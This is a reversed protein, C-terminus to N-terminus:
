MLVKLYAGAHRSDGRGIVSSFMDRITTILETQAILQSLIPNTPQESGGQLAVLEKLQTNSDAVFFRISNLYSALIDAQQETIGQIGRQLGSLENASSTLGGLNELMTTLFANLEPSMEAFKNKIDDLEAKTVKGGGESQEAFMEDFDKLFPELFRESGRMLLQKKIMDEFFEDFQEELGTLGDGAEKYAKLWSDIFNQAASKYSEGSGFGGLSELRTKELEKLQEEYEEIEEKWEKIQEHDTKKKDKELEIMRETADIQEQLNRQMLNQTKEYESISYVDQIKKDLEEYAKQLEEITELELEIQDQLKNDHAKFISAILMAVAQLAIVIYGIIGLASNAAVEMIEFQLTLQVASFILNTMGEVTDLIVMSTSDAEVGMAEMIDRTASFTDNIAEQYMKIKNALSQLEARKDSYIDLDKKAINAIKQNDDIIQQNLLRQRYLQDNSLTLLNQQDATLQNSITDLSMGERKANIVTDIADVQAQAQQQQFTANQLEVSLAEETRGAAKLEKIEKLSDRLMKFPNREMKIDEIKEIQSVIEKVDSAPLHSLSKKLETLKDLLNDIASNGVNSLDEFMQIYMDTGKFDEWAQKDLKEQSEDKIARQIVDKQERSYASESEVEAIQRLEDVKIKVRENQAKILYKTYTKLREEQAKIELENIRKMLSDWEDLMDKGEFMPRLELVKDKLMPLSTADIDFLQKALDPPINLKELELSMEYGSFLEEIQNILAKDEETKVRVKTEMVFEAKALEVKIKEFKEKALPLLKDFFALIGSETTFDFDNISILDGYAQKFADTYKEIAGEKATTEDFTKNLEEYADRMDKIVKIREDILSNERETTNKKEKEKGGLLNWLKTYYEIDATANALEQEDIQVGAQQQNTLTEQLKVAEEKKKNAEEQLELLTKYSDELSIQYKEPLQSNISEVSEKSIKEAYKLEIGLIKARERYLEEQILANELIGEDIDAGASKLSVYEKIVENAREWGSTTNKIIEGIGSEQESKSILIQSLQEETFRSGLEKKITDNVDKVTKSEWELIAKRANKAEKESIQGFEFKIQIKDLEYKQAAEALRKNVEYDSLGETNRIERQRKKYEEETRTMKLNAERSKLTEKYRLNLEDELEIEKERREILIDMIEIGSSLDKNLYFGEGYYEEIISKLIDQQEKLSDIEDNDLQRIRNQVLSYIDDIEKKQPVFASFELDEGKAISAGKFLDYFDDKANTLAKSYSEAIAELGKEFSAMSARERMRKVVNDYANSLQSIQTNEDVLFDLYEGYQSNLQSIIDRREKSGTNAESLRSVLDTYGDIQKELNATDLTIIENLNNKLLKAARNAEGIKSIFQVLKVTIFGIAFAAGTTAIGGLITSFGSALKAGMPLNKTLRVIVANLSDVFKTAKTSKTVIELLSIAFNSSSVKAAITHAIFPSFILLTVKIAHAVERWNEVLEKVWIISKKISYESSKGIDNLMLDVVDKLNSMMGQLTQAQQEQMNYFVGGESTIRKFIEEVDGFSVMRKSVREFVDGVSVARGELETFYTALEALINIGAESFQRLETGRLYNAAKVQGFALILRNMDVGLGASVDALMKTTDHLRETEVRYAALQKTYTILEKVTFPSKVALEVTQNWLKDAADKNQLISALAKNQKEFEGRVQILKNIYGQIQSLSFVLGLSRRLQMAYDLIKSQSKRMNGMSVNIRDIQQKVEKYIVNLQKWEASKPDLNNMTRKLADAYNKLENMTKPAGRQGVLEQVSQAYFASIEEKQRKLEERLQALTEKYHAESSDLDRIASNLNHIAALRQNISKADRSEGILKNASDVSMLTPMARYAKALRNIEQISRKLELQREREQVIAQMTATKMQENLVRNQAVQEKNQRSIERGREAELNRLERINNKEREYNYRNLSAALEKKQLETLQALVKILESVKDVSQTADNGIQAVPSNGGNKNGGNLNINKLAENAENLKRIFADVGQTSMANFANVIRIQAKESTTALQEIKRDAEELRRLMTEPINLVFGVSM